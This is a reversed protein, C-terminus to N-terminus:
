RKSGACAITAMVEHTPLKKLDELSLTIPNKDGKGNSLLELEYYEAEIEPIM